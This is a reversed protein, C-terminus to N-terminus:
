RKVSREALQAPDRKVVALRGEGYRLVRGSPTGVFLPRRQPDIRDVMRLDARSLTENLRDEVANGRSGHTYYWAVDGRGLRVKVRDRGGVEPAAYTYGGATASIAGGLERHAGAQRLAAYHLADLAAAEVSGFVTGPGAPTEAVAATTLALGLASAFLLARATRASLLQLVFDSPM